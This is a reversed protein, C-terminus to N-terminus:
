GEMDDGSGESLSRFEKEILHLRLVYFLTIILFPPILVGFLHVLLVPGFVETIEVATPITTGIIGAFAATLGIQAFRWQNQIFLDPIEDKKIIWVPVLPKALIWGVGVIAIIHFLFAFLVTTPTEFLSRGRVVIGFEMYISTLFFIIYVLTIVIITKLRSEYRRQVITACTATLISGITVSIHGISLGTFPFLFDDSETSLGPPGPSRFASPAQNALGLFSSLIVSIAFAYVFWGVLSTIFPASVNKWRNEIANNITSEQFRQSATQRIKTPIVFMKSLISM